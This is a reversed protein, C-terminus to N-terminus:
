FPWYDFGTEPTQYIFAHAQVVWNSDVVVQFVDTGTNSKALTMEPTYPSWLRLRFFKVERFRYRCVAQDDSGAIEDPAGLRAVVEQLRTKGPDIFAVDDPHIPDNITVRRFECGSFAVALCLLGPLFVRSRCMRM